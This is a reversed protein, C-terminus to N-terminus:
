IKGSDEPKNREVTTQDSMSKKMKKGVVKTWSNAEQLTPWNEALSEIKIEIMKVEEEMRTHKQEIKEVREGLMGLSEDMLERKGGVTAPPLKVEAEVESTSAKNEQMRDEAVVRYDMDTLKKQINVFQGKMESLKVELTLMKGEIEKKWAEMRRDNEQLQGDM